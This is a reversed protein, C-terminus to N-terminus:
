RLLNRPKSLGLERRFEVIKVIGCTPHKRRLALAAQRIKAAYAHPLRPSIRYDPRVAEEGRDHFRKLLHRVTRVPLGFQGALPAPAPGQQARQLLKRRVPIPVPKPM